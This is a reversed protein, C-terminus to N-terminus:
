SATKLKANKLINSVVFRDKVGALEVIKSQSLKQNSESLEIVLLEQESTYSRKRGSNGKRKDKAKVNGSCRTLYDTLPLNPIKNRMYHFARMDPVIFVNVSDTSLNRYSTRLCNQYVAELYMSASWGTVLKCEDAGLCVELQKILWLDVPTPNLSFLCVASSKEILRNTGKQETSVVEAPFDLMRLRDKFDKIDCNNAFFVVSDPGVNKSKLLDVSLEVIQFKTAFLNIYRNSGEDDNLYNRSINRGDGRIVHCEGKFKRHSKSPGWSSPIFLYGLLWLVVHNLQGIVSASLVTISEFASLIDLYEHDVQVSNLRMNGNSTESLICPYGNRVGSIISSLDKSLKTKSSNSKVVRKANTLGGVSVKDGICVYSELAKLDAPSLDQSPFKVLNNTIEDVVLSYGGLLHRIRGLEPLGQHNVIIVREDREIADKVQVAVSGKGSNIFCSGNVKGELSYGNSNGSVAVVFKDNSNNLKKILSQTKGTGCPAELYHITKQPNSASCGATTQNM